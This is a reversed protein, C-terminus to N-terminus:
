LFLKKKVSSDAGYEFILSRTCCDVSSIKRSIDNLLARSFHLCELTRKRIDFIEREYGCIRTMWSCDKGILECGGVLEV